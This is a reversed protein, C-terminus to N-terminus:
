PIIKIKAFKLLLVRQGSNEFQVTIRADASAGDLATVVGRGFREHEIRTGVSLNGISSPGPASTQTRPALKVLRRGTTSATPQAPKSQASLGHPQMRFAASPSRFFSADQRSFDVRSSESDGRGVLFQADIDDVFRSVSPYCSQGNRFRSKAYSLFCRQEARTIAVYFLRREEELDEERDISHMSPLLDEEVGVVQIVKYELGKAAHITMLTVRSEGSADDTDADTLLAADMLFESLTASGGDEERRMEQFQHVMNLLEDIDQLEAESDSTGENQLFEQMTSKVVVDRVLDYVAYDPLQNTFEQILTTFAELKRQTGANVSLGYAAPRSAIDYMPVGQQHAADTLKDVTTAGIGRAPFNVIRKFAEEDSHNMILRLYAVVDKVIKRQYFSVGGYIVYPIGSKRLADEVMRSQSNTRYLVAFDRYDYGEDRHLRAIQRAVLCGEEFDSSAATVRIPEGKERTSFVQKPIQRRNKSILSGAAGVINQTSRYNQELKFLKSEPYIKRFNLINEIQAGRFSYISQADDGVVCVRHHKEALLRIIQSQAHNTDQYEDVLIFQFLDQYKGLIDAHEHFLRYTLLLMDDFDIAGAERMREAYLAFIEKIRPMKLLYDEKVLDTEPYRRDDILMNKARSIRGLVAAPKYVTDDLSLEKILKKVLSKSDSTDYISYEHKLGIADSEVRLIRAFISHFTGMQLYRALEKGVMDAIRTRMERAAKNTFTLALISQPALGLHLLYAVKCTLVRTKGSGAGAIVLSPGENYMVAAQQAPNLENQVMHDVGYFFVPVTM